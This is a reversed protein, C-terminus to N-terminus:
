CNAEGDTRLAACAPMGRGTMTFFLPPAMFGRFWGQRADMRAIQSNFSDFSYDESQLLLGGLPDGV